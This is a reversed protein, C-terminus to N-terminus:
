VSAFDGLNMTNVHNPLEYSEYGAPRQNADLGSLTM